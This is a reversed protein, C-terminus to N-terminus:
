VRLYARRAAYVHFWVYSVLAFVAVRHRLRQVCARRGRRRVPAYHFTRSRCRRRRRQLYARTLVTQRRYLRVARSRCVLPIVRVIVFYAALCTRRQVHCTEASLILRFAVHRLRYIREAHRLVTVVTGAASAVSRRSRDRHRHVRKRRNLYARDAGHYAALVHQAVGAALLRSFGHHVARARRQQRAAHPRYVARTGADRLVAHYIRRELVLNVACISHFVHERIRLTTDVLISM